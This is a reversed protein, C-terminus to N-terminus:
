LNTDRDLLSSRQSQILQRYLKYTERESHWMNRLAKNIIFNYVNKSNVLTLVLWKGVPRVIIHFLHANQEPWIYIWLFSPSFMTLCTLHAKSNSTGGTLTDSNKFLQSDNMWKMIADAVFCSGCLYSFLEATAM